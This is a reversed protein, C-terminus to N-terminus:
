AKPAPVIAIKTGASGDPDGKCMEFAIWQGDPSWSPVGAYHFAPVAFLRNSGGGPKTVFLDAHPMFGGDSSFVIRAGDPAWSADTCDGLAQTMQKPDSGDPNISWINWQRNRLRQFLIRTGTPSWNPQRDDYGATLQATVKSSNVKWITGPDNGNLNHSEFAIWEGDPAWTSEWAVGKPLSTVQEAPTVADPDIVYVEDHVGVDSTFTILDVHANWTSGPLNVNQADNDVIVVPNSGDVNVVVIDSSGENYGERFRTFVLRNSQPSWAPNQLSGSLNIPIINPM